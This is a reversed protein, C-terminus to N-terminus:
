LSKAIGSLQVRSWQNQLESINETTNTSVKEVYIFIYLHILIDRHFKLKKITIFIFIKYYLM